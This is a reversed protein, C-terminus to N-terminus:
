KVSLSASDVEAKKKQISANIAKVSENYARIGSLANDLQSVANSLTGNIGLPELPDALKRDVLERAATLTESLAAVYEALVPEPLSVSLFQQWYEALTLNARHTEAMIQGFDNSNSSRLQSQALAIRSRLAAFEDSFVARYAEFLSSEENPLGCFPCHLGKIYKLGTALWDNTAANTHESVHRSLIATASKSVDTITSSLVSALDKPMEYATIEKLLSKTKIEASKQLTSIEKRTSEVRKDIDDVAMLKLFGELTGGKPM